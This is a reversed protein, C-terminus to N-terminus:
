RNNGYTEDTEIVSDVATNRSYHNYFLAELRTLQNRLGVARDKKYYEAQITAPNLWLLPHFVLPLWTPSPPTGASYDATTFTTIAGHAYTVRLTGSRGDEVFIRKEDAFFVVGCSRCHEGIKRGYDEVVRCWTTAGTAQFDVRVIAVDTITRTFVNSGDVVTFNESVTESSSMPEKSGIQMASEIYQLYIANIDVIRDAVTYEAPNLDAEKIIKDAIDKINMGILCEM